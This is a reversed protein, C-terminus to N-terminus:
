SLDNHTQVYMNLYTQTPVTKRVRMEQNFSVPCMNIGHKHRYFNFDLVFLLM